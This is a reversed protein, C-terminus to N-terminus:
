LKNCQTEFHSSILNWSYEFSATGDHEEPMIIESKKIANFIQEKNSYKISVLYEDEFNATDNCGKLNKKYDEATM